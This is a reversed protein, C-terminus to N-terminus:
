LFEEQEVDLAILDGKIPVIIVQNGKGWEPFVFSSGYQCIWVDSSALLYWWIDKLFSCYAGEFEATTQFIDRDASLNETYILIIAIKFVLWVFYFFGCAEESSHERYQIEKFIVM